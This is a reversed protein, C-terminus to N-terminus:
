SRDDALARETRVDFLRLYEIAPELAISDHAKVATNRGIGAVLSIAGAKGFVYTESGIPEVVEVYTQITRGPVHDTTMLLDEPRIGAIVKKKEYGEILCAKEPSLDIKFSDTQLSLSDGSGALTAEFFNMAPSGLFGAVFKNTPSNYLELPGGAQHIVGDKM